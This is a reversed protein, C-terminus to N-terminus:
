IKLLNYPFVFLDFCPNNAKRNELGAAFEEWVKILRSEAMMMIQADFLLNVELPLVIGFLFLPLISYYAYM